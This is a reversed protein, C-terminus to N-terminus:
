RNHQAASAVRLENILWLSMLGMSAVALISPMAIAIMLSVLFLYFRALANASALTLWWPTNGIVSGAVPLVAFLAWAIHPAHTASSSIQVFFVAAGGFWCLALRRVWVPRPHLAARLAPLPFECFLAILAAHAIPMPWSAPDLTTWQGYYGCCYAVQFALFVFAVGSRLAGHVAIAWQICLVLAAIALPTRAPDPGSVLDGAVVALWLVVWGYRVSPSQRLAQVHRTLAPALNFVWALACGVNVTLMAFAIALERPGWAVISRHKEAPVLASALLTGCLVGILMATKFLSVIGARLSLCEVWFDLRTQDFRSQSANVFYQRLAPVLATMEDRVGTTRVDWLGRVVSRQPADMLATAQPFRVRLNLYNEDAFVRSLALTATRQDRQLLHASNERWGLVTCLSTKLEAPTNDNLCACLTLWELEDRTAFSVISDFLDSLSRRLSEKRPSALFGRWIEAAEDRAAQMRLAASTERTEDPAPTVAQSAPPTGTIAAPIGPAELEPAAVMQMASEYAYRLRQFADADEDPRQQKVQKAYARRVAREDASSDIGLVDWPWQKDSGTTM